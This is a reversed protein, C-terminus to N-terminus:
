DTNQQWSKVWITLGKNIEVATSVMCVVVSCYMLDMFAITLPPFSCYNELAPCFLLLVSLVMRGGTILNAM